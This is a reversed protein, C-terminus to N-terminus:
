LVTRKKYLTVKIQWSFYVISVSKVVACVGIVCTVVVASLQLHGHWLLLLGLLTMVSGANISSSLSLMVLDRFISLVISDEVMLLFVDTASVLFLAVYIPYTPIATKTATSLKNIIRSKEFIKTWLVALDLLHRNYIWRQTENFSFYFAINNRYIYIYLLSDYKALPVMNRLMKGYYNEDDQLFIPCNKKIQQYLRM